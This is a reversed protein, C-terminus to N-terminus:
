RAVDLDDCALRIVRRSENRGIAAQLGQVGINLRSWSYSHRAPLTLSRLVAVFEPRERERTALSLPLYNKTLSRGRKGRERRAGFFSHM